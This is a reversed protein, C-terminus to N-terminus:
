DNTDVREIFELYNIQQHDLGIDRLSFCLYNNSLLCDIDEDDNLNIIKLFSKTEKFPLFLCGDKIKVRKEEVLIHINDYLNFCNKEILSM